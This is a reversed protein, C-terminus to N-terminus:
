LIEGTKQRKREPKMMEKSGCLKVKVKKTIRL